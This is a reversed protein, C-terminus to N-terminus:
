VVACGFVHECVVCTFLNCMAELKGIDQRVFKPVSSHLLAVYEIGIHCCRIWHEKM